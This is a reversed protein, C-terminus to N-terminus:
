TKNSRIRYRKTDRRRFQDRLKELFLLLFLPSAGNPKDPNKNEQYKGSEKEKPEVPKNEDIMLRHRCASLAPFVRARVSRLPWPRPPPFWLSVYERYQPLLFILFLVVFSLLTSVAKASFPFSFHGWWKSYKYRVKISYKNWRPIVIRWSSVCEWPVRPVFKTESIEKM